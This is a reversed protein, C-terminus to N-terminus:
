DIVIHELIESTEQNFDDKVYITCLLDGKKVTDGVLKHFYIGVGPDITDDKNKRGAGLQVSLHGFFSAPIERIVGDKSSLIDIHHNSLSLRSLDGHQNQIIAQFKQYASGDKLHTLVEEKADDYSINKGMAVMHSALQVCLETLKEEGKGQLIDMAEMVELANGVCRGLPTDMPHILTRVECGYYSGIKQMLSSLTVADQMNKILAGSGVKIDIVIKKAGGAIKKSMISSAILPISETTGTVDRLAYVKKDLPTIKDTQSTIAVKEKALLSFFEAESLNTQFGPISELKDITGGTIGLGRGSAKAVVVDCSAVLPLIVLTTKDGVGGTSHKDVVTKGLFSLDLIDGSHLFVDTLAFTEMDNMGQLCIAMLLSSMQYDAVNGQLYGNFIDTIEEKTLAKGWRKKEIIALIDM